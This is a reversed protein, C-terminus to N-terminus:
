DEKRRIIFPVAAFILLLAWGTNCGGSSGITEGGVQLTYSKSAAEEIKDLSTYAYMDLTLTKGRLEDSFVFDHKYEYVSPLAKWDDAFWRVLGIKKDCSLIVNDGDKLEYRITDILDKVNYNGTKDEDTGAEEVDCPIPIAVGFISTTVRMPVKLTGSLDFQVTKDNDKYSYYVNDSTPVGEERFELRVPEFLSKEDFEIIKGQRTEGSFTVSPEGIDYRYLKLRDPFMWDSKYNKLLYGIEVKQAACQVDDINYLVIHVNGKDYEHSDNPRWRKPIEYWNGSYCWNGPFYDDYYIRYKDGAFAKVKDLHEGPNFRALMRDSAIGMTVRLDKSAMVTENDHSMASVVIRYTGAVLDNPITDRYIDFSTYGGFVLATYVDQSGSKGISLKVDQQKFTDPDNPDFIIDPPADKRIREVDRSRCFSAVEKYDFSIASDDTVGADNIGVSQILRMRIDGSYVEVRMDFSAPDGADRSIVGRVYFDRKPAIIVEGTNEESPSTISISLAEAAPCILCISIFVVSLIRM